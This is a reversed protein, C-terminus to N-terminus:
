VCVSAQAVKKGLAGFSQRLLQGVKQLSGEFSAAFDAKKLSKL